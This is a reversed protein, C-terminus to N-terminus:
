VSQAISAPSWSDSGGAVPFSQRQGEVSTSQENIGEYLMSLPDHEITRRVELVQKRWRSVPQLLQFSISGSLVADPDIILPANTKDPLSVSGILAVDCIVV